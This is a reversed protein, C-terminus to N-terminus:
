IYHALVFILPPPSLSIVGVCCLITFRKFDRNNNHKKHNGGSGFTLFCKIREEYHHRVEVRLLFPNVGICGHLICSLRHMRRPHSGFLSERIQSGASNPWRGIGRPIIRIPRLRKTPHPTTRSDPPHQASPRPAVVRPGAESEPSSPPLM